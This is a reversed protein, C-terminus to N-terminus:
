WGLWGDLCCSGVWLSVWEGAWESARGRDRGGEKGGVGERWRGREGLTCTSMFGTVCRQSLQLESCRPVHVTRVWTLSTRSCPVLYTDPAPHNSAM